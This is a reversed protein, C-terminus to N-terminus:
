AAEGPESGYLLVSPDRNGLVVRAANMFLLRNRRNREVVTGKAPSIGCERSAAEWDGRRVAATFKPFKAPFGSGMAWAMSHIGLQADAPFSGWGEFRYALAEDHQELKQVILKHVYELPLRINNAPLKAAYTWGRKACLPDNKAAMWARAIQERTALNGSPLEWPHSIASKIPDILNGMGTTVLGLVDAYMCTVIGELPENFEVWIDRVSRHM